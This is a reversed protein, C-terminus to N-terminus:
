KGPVPTRCKDADQQMVGVSRGFDAPVQRVTYCGGDKGIVDVEFTDPGTRAQCGALLATVALLMAARRM